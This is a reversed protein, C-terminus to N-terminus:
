GATGTIEKSFTDPNRVFTECQNLVDGEPLRGPGRMACEWVVLVRWGTRVLESVAQQDREANRAIKSM